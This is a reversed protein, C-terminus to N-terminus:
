RSQLEKLELQDRRPSEDILTEMGGKGKVQAIIINRMHEVEQANEGHPVVGNMLKTEPLKSWFGSLNEKRGLRKEAPKRTGKIANKLEKRSNRRCIYCVIALEVM